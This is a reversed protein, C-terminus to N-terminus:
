LGVREAGFQRRRHNTLLKENGRTERAARHRGPKGNIVVEHVEVAHVLVENQHRDIRAIDLTAIFRDGVHNASTIATVLNELDNRDDRLVASIQDDIEILEELTIKRADAPP